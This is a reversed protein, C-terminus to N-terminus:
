LCGMCAPPCPLARWSRVQMVAKAELADGLMLPTLGCERATEAAAQLAMFPTSILTYRNRPSLTRDTPATEVGKGGCRAGEAMTTCSPCPMPQTTPDAVTPGSAITLPDDGPVDSIALTIVRAPAAAAALGGGKIASLHRRVVNMDRISAGSHLLARNITRIDELTVGDRPCEM